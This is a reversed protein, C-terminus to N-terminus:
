QIIVKKMQSNEGKTIKVFYIGKEFRSFDFNIDVDKENQKSIAELQQGQINYIQVNLDNIKDDSISLKFMGESPNPYVEAKLNNLEVKEIAQPIENDIASWFRYDIVATSEYGCYNTVTLTIQYMSDVVFNHIPQQDTSTTGDGFDWFYQSNDDAQFEVAVNMSDAFNYYIEFDSSATLNEDVTVPIYLTTDKGCGNTIKVSVNYTGLTDFKHEIFNEGAIVNGDGFNWEYSYGPTAFFQLNEAPCISYKTTEVYVNQDFPSDNTIKIDFNVTTDTGCQNTATLSVNYIGFDAFSHTPYFDTSVNGDGFNWSTSVINGYVGFQIEDSPCSSYKEAYTVLDDIPRNNTVDIIQTITTDNGCSNVLTLSVQYKGTSKYSHLEYQNESTTGDGFDWLYSVAEYSYVYMSIAENPCVVTPYINSEIWGYFPKDTSVKVVTNATVKAGCGNTVTLSVPFNGVKGFSFFPYMDTSYNGSGFNWLMSYSNNLNSYFQVSENKCSVEPYYYIDVMENIPINTSIKIQTTLTTDNGCEDTIKLMVVYNGPNAYTHTPAQLDSSTGDGFNWLFSGLSYGYPPMIDNATSGDANTYYVDDMPYFIGDSYAYFTILDKPCAENTSAYMEAYGTYKDNESVSIIKVISDIGCESKSKAIVKYNGINPYSHTVNSGEAFTGDGFDWSISETYSYSSFYIQSNPCVHQKSVYIDSIKGSVIVQGYQSGILNKNADYAYLQVYYYGANEFIHTANFSSDSKSSKINGLNTDYCIIIDDGFYWEFYVGDVSTNTFNVTLPACGQTVDMTFSISNTTDNWWGGDVLTDQSKGAFSFITLFLCLLILKKMNKKLKFNIFIVSYRNFKFFRPLWNIKKM